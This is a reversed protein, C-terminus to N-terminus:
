LTFYLLFLGITGVVIRYYAFPAFGNKTVFELMWKVVFIAGIFATIFGVAIISLGDSDLAHRNKWLDLTVAGLMIPIAQFFSFEAATRREVGFCLAGLITAGSRSVGPILALCQLIGIWLSTKYPISEISFLKPQPKYKEIILIAVGGLVMMSCVVFPSFLVTKIINHLLGGAIMAPIFAIISVIAFHRAGPDCRLGTIVKLLRKFYLVCIALIAGLQIVVEFVHGPPGKFGILVDALILHGTSSVPLFETLAEILGMVIAQFYHTMMICFVM